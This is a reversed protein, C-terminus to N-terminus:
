DLGPRGCPPGPKKLAPRPSEALKEGGPGTWDGPSKGGAQPARSRAENKRAGGRYSSGIRTSGLGAVGAPAEGMVSRRSGSSAGERGDPNGNGEEGAPAMGVSMGAAGSVAAAFPDQVPRSAVAPSTNRPTIRRPPATTGHHSESGERTVAHTDCM